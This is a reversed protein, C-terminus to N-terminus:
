LDAPRTTIPALLGAVYPRVRTGLAAALADREDPKLGTNSRRIGAVYLTGGVLCAAVLALLSSAGEILVGAALAAGACVCGIVLSRLLRLYNRARHQLALPENLALLVLAVAQAVVNAAVAGWAGFPPILAVGAVLNLVLAAMNVKVILGGRERGNVFAVVPNNVTQFASVLALPVFLWASEGFSEGYIFPFAFVLVPVAVAAIGGALVSSVRTARDFTDAAREPWEALIGAVAPLLAHLMADVPATIMYSVGFALAFLGLDETKDFWQLLFIESRSFVLLGVVGALWSALAFRWYSRGLGTPLRPSLVARRRAHGLFCLALLLGIVPGFTRVAWVASASATLVATLVSATQVFLNSVLVLQAGLATRNEITLSLAAGGLLCSGIVAAGVTASQWAPDGHTLVLALAILIPMEVIAHFGLSRMLLSDAAAKDGAAEARSGRQILATSFGFNAVAFGLTLIATLFALDGYGSVGITRAVIANAVFAIPLSVATQLATWTSGGVARRQLERPSLRTDDDETM